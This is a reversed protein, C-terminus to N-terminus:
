KDLNVVITGFDSRIVIPHLGEGWKGRAEVRNEGMKLDFGANHKLSGNTVEIDFDYGGDITVLGITSTTFSDKLTLPGAVERLDLKGFSSQIAATGELGWLNVDCFSTELNLFGVFSTVKVIGFHQEISVEMGAPVEVTYSVGAEQLDRGESDGGVLEYGLESGSISEKLELRELVDQSEAGIIAIVRIEDGDISRLDVVGHQGKLSLTTFEGQSRSFTQNKEFAAQRVKPEVSFHISSQGNSRQNERFYRTDIVFLLTLLALIAV